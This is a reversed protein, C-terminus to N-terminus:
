AAAKKAFIGSTVDGEDEMNVVGAAKWAAPYQKALLSLMSEKEAKHDDTKADRKNVSKICAVIPGDTPRGRAEAAEGAKAKTEDHFARAQQTIAYFPATVKPLGKADVGDSEPEFGADLAQSIKSLENLRTKASNVAKLALEDKGAAKRMNKLHSAIGDRFYKRGEPSLAMLRPIFPKWGEGETRVQAIASQALSFGQAEPGAKQAPPAPTNASEKETTKRPLQHVKGAPKRDANTMVHKEATAVPSAAIKSQKTMQFELFNYFL